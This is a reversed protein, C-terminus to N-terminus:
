KRKWINLIAGAILFLGQIIVAISQITSSNAALTLTDTM